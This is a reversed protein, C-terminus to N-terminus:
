WKEKAETDEKEPRHIAIPYIGISRKRCARCLGHSFPILSLVFQYSRSFMAEDAHCAMEARIKAM